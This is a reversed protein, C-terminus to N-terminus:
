SLLWFLGIIINIPGYTTNRTIRWCHIESHFLTLLEYFKYRLARVTSCDYCHWLKNLKLHCNLTNKWNISFQHSLVLSIHCTLQVSCKNQETLLIFKVLKTINWLLFKKLKESKVAAVKRRWCIKLLLWWFQKTFFTNKSIECFEYSFM